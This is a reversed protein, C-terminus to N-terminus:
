GQPSRLNVVRTSRAENIIKILVPTYGGQQLSAAGPGRDVKVREEPNITAVILVHPDLLEQLRGADRAKAAEDIKQRLAPDLPSGLYDMAAALRAVNAALPQGEVDAGLVPADIAIVIWVTCGGLRSLMRKEM